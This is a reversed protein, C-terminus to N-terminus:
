LADRAVDGPNMGPKLSEFSLNPLFANPDDEVREIWVQDVLVRFSSDTGMSAIVIEIRIPDASATSVEEWVVYQRFRNELTDYPITVEDVVTDAGVAPHRLMRLVVGGSTPAAGLGRLRAGLMYREGLVYPEPVDQRITRTHGDSDDCNFKIYQAGLYAQSSRRIVPVPTGPSLEIEWANASLWSANAEDKDAVVPSEFSADLSLVAARTTGPDGLSLGIWVVMAAIISFGWRVGVPFRIM